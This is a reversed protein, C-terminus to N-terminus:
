KIYSPSNLYDGGVARCSANKQLLSWVDSAKTELNIQQAFASSQGVEPNRGLKTIIPLPATDKMAKLLGRGTDNFALVRLYAPAPQELVAKPVDLLLQCMLRRIRGTTYRKHTCSTLAEQLSACDASQKLLNELGESCQCREAIEHPSLIRLRYSLLQWLLKEDYGATATTLAAAVNQPM